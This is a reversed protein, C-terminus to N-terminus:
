FTTTTVLVPVVVLYLRADYLACFATLLASVAASGVICALTGVPAVWPAGTLWALRPLVATEAASTTLILCLIQLAHSLLQLTVANFLVLRV